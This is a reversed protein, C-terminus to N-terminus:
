FNAVLLHIGQNSFQYAARIWRWILHQRATEELAQLKIFLVEASGFPM